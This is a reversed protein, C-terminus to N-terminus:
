TVEANIEIDSKLIYVEKDFIKGNASEWIECKIIGADMDKSVDATINAQYEYDTNANLQTYGDATKDTKSFKKIDSATTFLYVILEPVDSTINIADGNTDFLKVKLYIPEGTKKEIM